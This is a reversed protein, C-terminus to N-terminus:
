TEVSIRKPIDYAKACPLKNFSFMASGRFPHSTSSFDYRGLRDLMCRALLQNRPDSLFESTMEISPFWEFYETCRDFIFYDTFMRTKKAIYSYRKMKRTNPHFPYGMAGLHSNVLLNSLPVDCFLGGDSDYWIGVISELFKNTAFKWNGEVIANLFTALPLVSGLRQKNIEINLIKTFFGTDECLKPMNKMFTYLPYADPVLDWDPYEKLFRDMSVNKASNVPPEKYQYKFLEKLKKFNIMQDRLYSFSLARANPILFRSFDILLRTIFESYFHDFHNLILKKTDNGDYCEAAPDFGESVEFCPHDNYRGMFYSAMMGAYNDKKEKVEAFNTIVSCLSSLRNSILLELLPDLTNPKGDCFSGCADFYFIDFLQRDCRLFESLEGNYMKVPLRSEKISILAENFCKRNSEVSYINQPLVGEKLLVEIDNLPNPGGLLLVKLKYPPVM